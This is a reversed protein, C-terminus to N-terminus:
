SNCGSLCAMYYLYSGCVNLCDHNYKHPHRIWIYLLCMISTYFFLWCIDWFIFTKRKAMWLEDDYKTSFYQWTGTYFCKNNCLDCIFIFSSSGYGVESELKEAE